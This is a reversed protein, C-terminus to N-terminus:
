CELVGAGGASGHLRCSNGHWFYYYYYYYYYYYWIGTGVRYKIVKWVAPVLSYRYL